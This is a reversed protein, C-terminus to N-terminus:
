MVVFFQVQIGNQLGAEGNPPDDFNEQHFIGTYVHKTKVLAQSTQDQVLIRSKLAMKCIQKETKSSQKSAAMQLFYVFYFM